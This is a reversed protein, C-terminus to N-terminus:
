GRIWWLTNMSDSWFIADSIKIELVEAIRLALRVGIVAGMLELRPISTAICPAVRSKAAVIESSSSGDEYTCRAYVVAGYANESADVFMHLSMSDLSRDKRRLCRPIQVKKLKELEGFWARACSALPETLEDDWELGATWMDQLLMKARIIFPALFVIPDFLTAIKKLFNRKTYLMNSDPVHERFTFIDANALWWVGLTKTCPLQDRDLDVESKRDQIPVKSLVTPSNSLWKHAHMGAKNLLCSLQRYLGIGQKEDLVSDMSDDMYTSKLITETARGYDAQHKRAHHQLVFQALFPSSNIGFIVRDFKYVDPLRDQTNVRWLFRHYPKDETGIGIRLYMEAIDCVVAVQYRRFHLLVDFLDQQLKPGQHIVDNLSVGNCKASADFVIRTKTTEKDPRIVSFIRYIGSQHM